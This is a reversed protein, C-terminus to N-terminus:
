ATVGQTARPRLVAMALLGGLIYFFALAILASAGIPWIESGGLAELSWFTGFAVIMAGVVFKMANEPVRSLPQRLYAGVLVVPVIAAIAGGASSIM